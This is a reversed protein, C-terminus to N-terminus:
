KAEEKFAYIVTNRGTYEDYAVGIGEVIGSEMMETLRPRVANMDNFGLRRAIMRATGPGFDQITKIIHQNRTLPRQIYSELRTEETIKM